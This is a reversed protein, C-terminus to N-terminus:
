NGTPVAEKLGLSIQSMNRHKFKETFVTFNIVERQACYPLVARPVVRSNENKRSEPQGLSGQFSESFSAQTYKNGPMEREWPKWLNDREKQQVNVKLSTQSRRWSGRPRLRPRPLVDATLQTRDESSPEPKLTQM